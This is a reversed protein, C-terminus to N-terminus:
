TNQDIKRNKETLEQPIYIGCIGTFLDTSLKRFDQHVEVLPKERLSLRNTQLWRDTRNERDMPLFHSSPPFGGPPSTLLRLNLGPVSSRHIASNRWSEICTCASLWIWSARILENVRWTCNFGRMIGREAELRAMWSELSRNESKFHMRTKPHIKCTCAHMDDITRRSLEGGASSFQITAGRDDGLCRVEAVSTLNPLVYLQRNIAGTYILPGWRM